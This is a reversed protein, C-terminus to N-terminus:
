AALSGAVSAATGWVLPWLAWPLGPACAHPCIACRSCLLLVAPLWPFSRVEGRYWPMREQEDHPGHHHLYTVIDLWVVNIWYPVVYLNFMAVPGLAVTAAALVALMGKMFKNSTKIQMQSECTVLKPAQPRDVLFCAALCSTNYCLMCSWENSCAQSSAHIGAALQNGPWDLASSWSSTHMLRAAHWVCNGACLNSLAALSHGTMHKATMCVSALIRQRCQCHTLSM